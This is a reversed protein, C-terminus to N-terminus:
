GAAGEPEYSHNHKKKWGAIINPKTKRDLNGLLFTRLGSLKVASLPTNSHDEHSLGPIVQRSKGDECCLLAALGTPILNLLTCNTPLQLYGKNTSTHIGASAMSRTLKREPAMAAHEGVQADLM